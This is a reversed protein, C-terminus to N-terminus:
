VSVDSLAYVPCVRASVSERCRRESVSVPEVPDATRGNLVLPFLSGCSKRGAKWPAQADSCTAGLALPALPPTPTPAPAPRPRRRWSGRLPAGRHTGLPEAARERTEGRVTDAPAEGNAAHSADPCALFTRRRAPASPPARESPARGWARSPHGRAGQGRGDRALAGPRELADRSTVAAARRSRSGGLHRGKLLHVVGAQQWPVCPLARALM